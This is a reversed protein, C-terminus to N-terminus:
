QMKEQIEGLDAKIEGVEGVTGDPAIAYEVPKTEAETDVQEVVPCQNEKEM